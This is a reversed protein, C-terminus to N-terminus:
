CEIEIEPMTQFLPPFDAAAELLQQLSDTDVTVSNVPSKSM